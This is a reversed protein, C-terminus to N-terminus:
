WYGGGCEVHTRVHVWEGLTTTPSDPDEQTLTWPPYAADDYREGPEIVNAPPNGDRGNTTPDTVKYCTYGAACPWPKRATKVERILDSM